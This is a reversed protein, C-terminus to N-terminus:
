ALVAPLGNQRAYVIHAAVTAVEQQAAEVDRLRTPGVCTIRQRFAKTVQSPLEAVIREVLFNSAGVLAIILVESDISKLVATLAPRDLRAVDEFHLPPLRPRRTAIPASNPLPEPARTSERKPAAKIEPASPTLHQALDRNHKLLNALIGRRADDNAAALIAAVTDSRPTPRVRIAQQRTVWDALEQELVQVSNPDIDGLVSLREITQSQLIEPLAALVQAARAPPLYSLVVAVTQAHERALYPVLSEVRAQELFEFPRAIPRPVVPTPVDQATTAAASFNLEVTQSPDEAAIPGIRRFEASVDAREEDDVPGLAKIAARLEKAEASSLQALLGASTDADLSRILIAAKRLNPTLLAM